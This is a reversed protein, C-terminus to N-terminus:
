SRDEEEEALYSEEKLEEAVSKPVDIKLREIKKASGNKEEIELLVACLKVDKEAVSFRKPLQKIFRELADEKAIGIVSHHPGTMGADTIYATGNPLIIEDATQVHTHTGLVASVKGDLYWGLAQKESTAEAHFDVIIINTQSKLKEVEKDATRFPCDIPAMFVRGQLNIVGINLGSKSKFLGSGSGPVGTPFNAPRLINPTQDIFDLIEKRDWVHNGTTQCDVGYHFIKGAIERTLGFGGAANEVNAIVFEIGYKKKLSPLMHAVAYRGPKGMIDAIFLIVM